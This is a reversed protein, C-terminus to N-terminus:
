LPEQAPKHKTFYKKLLNYETEAGPIRRRDAEKVYNYYELADHYAIDSAVLMGDSVNKVLQQALMSISQKRRFDNIVDKYKPMELYSPVLQPNTVASNYATEVFGFSKIGTSILHMRDSVTFTKGFLSFLDIAELILAEIEETISQSIAGVETGGEIAAIREAKDFERMAIKLKALVEKLEQSVKALNIRIGEIDM